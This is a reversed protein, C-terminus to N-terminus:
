EEIDQCGERLELGVEDSHSGSFTHGDGSGFSFQATLFGFERLPLLFFQAAHVIGAVIGNAIEGFEERNRAGRDVPSQASM